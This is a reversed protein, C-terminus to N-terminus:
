IMRYKSLIKLLNSFDSETIQNNDYAQKFFDNFNKGLEIKNKGFSNSASKAIRNYVDDMSYSSIKGASVAKDFSEKTKKIVGEWTHGWKDGTGKKIYNIENRKFIWELLDEPTANKYDKTLQRRRNFLSNAIEKSEFNQSIMKIRRQEIQQLKEFYENRLSSKPISEKLEKLNTTRVNKKWADVLSPQKELKSLVDKLEVFDDFFEKQFVDNWKEFKSYTKPYKTKLVQTFEGISLLKYSSLGNEFDDMNKSLAEKNKTTLKKFGNDKLKKYNNKLSNVINPANRIVQAVGYIAFVVNAIELSQLFLRGEETALLEERYDTAAQNAGILALVIILEAVSMLPSLATAILIQYGFSKAEKGFEYRQQQLGSLMMAPMIQFSSKPASFIPASDYFYVGIPQLTSVEGNLKIIKKYWPTNRYRHSPFYYEGMLSYKYSITNNPNFETVYHTWLEPYKTARPYSFAFVNSKELNVFDYRDIGNYNDNLSNEKQQVYKDIEQITQSEYWLKLITQQFKAQNEDQMESEIKKYIGESIVKELIEKADNQPTSSLLELIKLEESNWHVWENLEKKLETIRQEVTYNAYQSEIQTLNITNPLQPSGDSYDIVSGFDQINNEFEPVKSLQNPQINVLQTNLRSLEARNEISTSYTVRDRKIINSNTNISNPITLVEGPYILSSSGSKLNSINSNVLSHFDINLKQSIDWLNDGKQVTYNFPSNLVGNQPLRNLSNNFTIKSQSNLEKQIGNGLVKAQKQLQNIQNQLDKIRQGQKALDKQFELEQIQTYIAGLVVAVAAVGLVTSGAIGSAGWTPCTTSCAITGGTAAPM